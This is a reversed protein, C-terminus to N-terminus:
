IEYVYVPTNHKSSLEAVVPLVETDWDLGGLGCGIKPMSFELQNNYAYRMARDLCTEVAELSAYRQGDRGYYEQTYANGVYLGPEVAVIQVKGLMEPGKSNRKFETYVNPWKEKIAKAVGSGMVGQCNVGHIILGKSVVKTIDDKFVKVFM